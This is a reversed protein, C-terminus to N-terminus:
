IRDKLLNEHNYMEFESDNMEYLIKTIENNSRLQFLYHKQFLFDLCKDDYQNNYIDYVNNVENNVGPFDNIIILVVPKNNTLKLYEFLAYDTKLLNDSQKFNFDVFVINSNSELIVYSRVNNIKENLFPLMKYEEDNKLIVNILNNIYNKGVETKYIYYFSYPNLLNISRM